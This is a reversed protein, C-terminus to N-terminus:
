IGAVRMLRLAELRLVEPILTFYTDCYPSRTDYRGSTRLTVIPCGGACVYRWQCSSCGEKQHAPLPNQGKARILQVLDKGEGIKGVPKHLLMQCTSIEGTHKVVVYNVGAGCAHQHPQSLQVRDLLTDLFSFTPAHSALIEEIKAYLKRLGEILAPNDVTLGNEALPNDRFFSLTFPIPQVRNLLFEALQPLHALNQATVVVSVNFPVGYEQLLLMGREVYRSSGRGNIFPRQVDNATGLGDLSIAVQFNHEKLQRAREATITTGNSLLISEVLMGRRAAETRAWSNLAQALDWELLAEGGAFKLSLESMGQKAASEFLELLVKQGTEFSMQESTKGLYCYTCRLNCQNTVHMWVGLKKLPAFRPSSKTEDLTALGNFEFSRVLNAVDEFNATADLELINKHLETLTSEGDLAQLIVDATQDLIVTGADFQPNYYLIKQELNYSFLQALKRPKSEPLMQRVTFGALNRELGGECACDCQFQRNADESVISHRSLVLSDKIKFSNAGSIKLMPIM